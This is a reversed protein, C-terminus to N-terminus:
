TFQMSLGAGAPGCLCPICRHTTRAFGPYNANCDGQAYTFLSQYANCEIWEEWNKLNRKVMSQWLMGPLWNVLWSMGFLNKKMDM